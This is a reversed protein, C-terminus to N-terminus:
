EVAPQQWPKNKTLWDILERTKGPGPLNSVTPLERRCEDLVEDLNRNQAHVSVIMPLVSDEAIWLDYEQGTMGLFEYISKGQPDQHWQEIFDDIDDYAVEQAVCKEIFNSM